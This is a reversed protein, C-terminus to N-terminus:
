AKNAARVSPQATVSAAPAGPVEAAFAPSAGMFGSLTIALAAKLAILGTLKM